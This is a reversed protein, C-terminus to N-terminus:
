RAASRWWADLHPAVIQVLQADVYRLMAARDDTRAGVLTDTHVVRDVLTKGRGDIWRVRATARATWVGDQILEYREIVVAIEFPVDIPKGDPARPADVAVHGTREVLARAVEAAAAAPFDPDLSGGYAFAAPLSPRRVTPVHPPEVVHPPPPPASTIADHAALQAKVAPLLRAALDAAAHDLATLEPATADLTTVVVGKDADRVRVTLTVAGKAGGAITGDIVVRARSPPTAGASVVVVELGGARLARAVESAVPQGYLEFGKGTALPLLAVTQPPTDAHVPRAVLVAIAVILWRV